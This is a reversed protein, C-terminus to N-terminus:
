KININLLITVYLIRITANNNHEPREEKVRLKACCM